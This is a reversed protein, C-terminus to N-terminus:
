TKKGDDIQRVNKQGFVLIVDQNQGWYKIEGDMRRERKM